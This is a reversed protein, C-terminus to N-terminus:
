PFNSTNRGTMEDAARIFLFGAHLICSRSVISRKFSSSIIYIYIILKLIIFSSYSSSFAIYEKFPFVCNPACHMM